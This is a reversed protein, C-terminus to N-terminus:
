ATAGHPCTPAGGPGHDTQAQPLTRLDVGPDVLASPDVPSGLLRLARRFDRGGDIAVVGTLADASTFFAMFPRERVHMEADDLDGALHLVHEYQESWFWSPDTRTAPQELVAHAVRQAQDIAFRYHEVHRHSGRAEDWVAAVDGAAYVQSLTTRGYPDVPVARRGPDLRSGLLWDTAPRVGVGVVVLDAPLLRGDELRVAEVGHQGELAAVQAGTVLRVGHDEHWARVRRSLAPGLVGVLPGPLRDILTVDLGRARLTAGVECGIFGMGVIVVSRASAADRALRDADEIRRIQHVRPLDMGPIRPAINVSGTAIVLADYPLDQGDALVVRRRDADLEVATAGSRVEIGLEAYTSPPYVLLAEVDTRGALYSKTLPPREYPLHPEEGLLVLDGAFGRRRLTVSATAGALSAGVVVVRRPSV